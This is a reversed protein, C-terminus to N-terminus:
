APSCCRPAITLSPHSPRRTHPRAAVIRIRQNHTIRAQGRLRQGAAVDGGAEAKYASDLLAKEESEFKRQKAQEPDWLAGLVPVTASLAGFLAM